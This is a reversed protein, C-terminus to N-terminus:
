TSVNRVTHRLTQARFDARRDQVGVQRLKMLLRLLQQVVARIEQVQVHHVTVKYWIEREAMWDDFTKATFYLVGEELRVHHHGIRLLYIRLDCNNEPSLM